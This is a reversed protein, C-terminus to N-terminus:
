LQDITPAEALSFSASATYVGNMPIPKSFNGVFMKARFRVDAPSAYPAERIEIGVAETVSANAVAQLRGYGNADPFNPVIDLSITVERQQPIKVAYQGTDKSSADEFSQSGSVELDRQGAIQNYTGPTASEIFLRFNNGLKIAM